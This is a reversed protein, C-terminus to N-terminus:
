RTRRSRGIKKVRKLGSGFRCNAQNVTRALLLDSLLGRHEPDRKEEFSGKGPDIDGAHELLQAIRVCDLPLPFKLM